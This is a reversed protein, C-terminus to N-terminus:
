AERRAQMAALQQDTLPREGSWHVIGAFHRNVIEAPICYEYLMMRDPPVDPPDGEGSWDSDLDPHEEYVAFQAAIEDPVDFAFVVEAPLPSPQEGDPLAGFGGGIWVQDPPALYVGVLMRRNDRFGHEAISACNNRHTTHYLRM